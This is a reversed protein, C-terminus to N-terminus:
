CDRLEDAEGRRLMGVLIPASPRNGIDPLDFTQKELAGFTENRQFYGDPEVILRFGESTKHLAVKQATSRSERSFLSLSKINDKTYFAACGDLFRCAKEVHQIVKLRKALIRDVIADTFDDNPDAASLLELESFAKALESEKRPGTRLVAAARISLVVVEEHVPFKKLVGYQDEKEEWRTQTEKHEYHGNKLLKTTLGSDRFFNGLSFSAPLYKREADIWSEEIMKLCQPVGALTRRLIKRRSEKRIEKELDREFTDAVEKGFYKTACDRGCLAQRGDEMQATFGRRHLTHKECFACRIDHDAHYRNLYGIPIEGQPIEPTLGAQGDPRSVIFRSNSSQSNMRLVM